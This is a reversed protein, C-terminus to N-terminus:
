AKLLRVLGGRRGERQEQPKNKVNSEKKSDSSKPMKLEVIM